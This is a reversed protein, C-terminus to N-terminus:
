KNQLQKLYTKVETRILEIDKRSRRALTQSLNDIQEEHSKVDDELKDVRPTLECPKRKFYVSIRTKVHPLITTIYASGIGTLVLLVLYYIDKM